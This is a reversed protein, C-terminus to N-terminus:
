LHFVVIVLIKVTAPRGAKQIGPEVGEWHQRNLLQEYFQALGITTLYGFCKIDQQVPLQILCTLCIPDLLVLSPLSVLTIPGLTWDIPVKTCIIGYARLPKSYHYVQCKKFEAQGRWKIQEM